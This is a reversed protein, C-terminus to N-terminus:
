QRKQEKDSKIANWVAELVALDASGLDDRTWRVIMSRIRETKWAAIVTATPEVLYSKNWSSGGRSDGDPDFEMGGCNIRGTPTIKTIECRTYSATLGSPSHVYVKDGEKLGLLWGKRKDM